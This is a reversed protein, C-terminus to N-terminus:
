VSIEMVTDTNLLQVWSGATTAMLHIGAGDHIVLEAGDEIHIEDFWIPLDTPIGM